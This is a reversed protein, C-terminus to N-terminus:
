ARNLNGVLDPACKADAWARHAQTGGQSGKQCCPVFKVLRQQGNTTTVLFLLRTQSLLQQVSAEPYATAFYYPLCATPNQQFPSPSAQEALQQHFTALKRLTRRIACVCRVVADM